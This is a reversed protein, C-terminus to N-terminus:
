IARLTEEAMEGVQEALSLASTLGPSEIGVLHIVRPFEADREVLFDAPGKAGPAVRKARIGSYAPQLDEERLEPLLRQARRAFEALPE